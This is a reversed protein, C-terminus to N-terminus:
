QALPRWEISTRLKNRDARVKTIKTANVKTKQLDAKEPTNQMIVVMSPFINNPACPLKVCM